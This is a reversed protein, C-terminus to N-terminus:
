REKIVKVANREGLLWTKCEKTIADMFSEPIEEGAEFRAKHPKTFSVGVVAVYKTKTKPKVEEVEVTATDDEFENYKNFM